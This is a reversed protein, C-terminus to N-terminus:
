PNNAAMMISTLLFGMQKTNEVNRYNKISERTKKEIKLLRKEIATDKDELREGKIKNKVNQIV